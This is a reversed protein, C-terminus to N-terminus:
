FYVILIMHMHHFQLSKCNVIVNVMVSRLVIIAGKNAPCSDTHSIIYIGNNDLSVPNMFLGFNYPSTQFFIASELSGINANNSESIRVSNAPSDATEGSSSIAARFPLFARSGFTVEFEPM